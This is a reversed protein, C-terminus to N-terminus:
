AIKRFSIEPLTVGHNPTLTAVMSNLQILFKEVSAHNSRWHAKGMASLMELFLMEADAFTTRFQFVKKEMEDSPGNAEWILFVTNNGQLTSVAGRMTSIKYPCTNIQNTFIEMSSREPFMIVNNNM